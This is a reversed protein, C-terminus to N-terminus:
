EDEGDVAIGDFRQIFPKQDVELYAKAIEKETLYGKAVAEDLRNPDVVRKTIFNWLMVNKKTTKGKCLAKLSKAGKPANEPMDADTAVWFRSKRVIKRWYNDDMQIVSMNHSHMYTTAQGRAIEVFGSVKKILKQAEAVYELAERLSVEDHINVGELIPIEVTKPVAPGIKNATSKKKSAM